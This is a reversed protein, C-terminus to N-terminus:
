CNSSSCIGDKGPLPEYPNQSDISQQRKQARAKVRDPNPLTMQEGMAAKLESLDVQNLDVRALENASLGLCSPSQPTGWTLGLQEHAAEQVLRALSSNFCCFVETKTQCHGLNYESCHSGIYHCLDSGRKLQLAQEESTCSLYDTAVELAIMAFFTAPSFSFQLGSTGYSVTLGYYSLSPSYAGMAAEGYLRTMMDALQEHNALVDNVFPSGLTKISELAIDKAFLYSANLQASNTTDSRVKGRCCSVGGLKNRCNEKQGSFFRLHEYDGYVAAQRALELKTLADSLGTNAEQDQSTCLGFQCVTQTCVEQTIIEEERVRCAFTKTSLECTGDDKQAVCTTSQLSCTPDSALEDCYGNTIESQCSLKIQYNWCDKYIPEGDVIRTEPGELCIKENEECSSARSTQTLVKNDSSFSTSDPCTNSPKMDSYTTEREKEEIHEPLPELPAQCRFIKVEENSEPQEQCGLSILPECAKPNPQGLCARKQTELLCISPFLSDAQTCEKETISCSSLALCTDELIEVRDLITRNEVLTIDPHTPWSLSEHCSFFKQHPLLTEESDTLQCGVKKLLDCSPNAPTIECTTRLEKEACPVIVTVGEVTITQDPQTCIEIPDSCQSGIACEGESFWQNEISTEVELAVVTNPQPNLPSSCAFIKQTVLCSDPGASEKCSSSRETCQTQLPECGNQPQGILCTKEEQWQWCDRYVVVNNILRTEATQTCVRRNTQCPPLDAWVPNMFFPFFLPSLILKKIM